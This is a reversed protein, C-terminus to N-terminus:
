IFLFFYRFQKFYSRISTLSSTPNITIASNNFYNPLPTAMPCHKLILKLQDKPDNERFPPEGTYMEFM